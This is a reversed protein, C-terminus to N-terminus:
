EAPAMSGARGHVASDQALRRKTGPRTWDLFYALGFLIALGVAILTTDLAIGAPTFTPDNPLEFIDERIIHGIVALVTSLWFVPLTNRGLSVIWNDADLWRKLFHPIPSFVIIYVLSLVHLLRFAGVWSKDFGSLWFWSPLQPFKDWHAGMVLIASAALYAIAMGFVVPSYRLRDGRRLMVGVVFGITFILQWAFPNFYWTGNGPFTPPSLRFINAALWLTFSSALALALNVRALLMILPLFAMMVMYMPLINFNGTQYTLAGIGALASLPQDVIWHREDPVMLDPQELWTAAAAYIAFGIAIASLHAIYLTGIRKSVLGISLPAQGSVFRPFYAFAASIGALFVFIEAADSLGFNRHTFNSYFNGPIHNIFISVLALGRFFDIRYDRPMSNTFAQRM